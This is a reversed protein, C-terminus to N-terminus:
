LGLLIYTFKGSNKDNRSNQTYVFHALVCLLFTSFLFNSKEIRYIRQLTQCKEEFILFYIGLHGNSKWAGKWQLVFFDITIALNNRCLLDSTFFFICFHGFVAFIAFFVSMEWLMGQNWSFIIFLTLDIISSFIHGVRFGLHKTWPNQIKIDPMSATNTQGCMIFIVLGKKVRLFKPLDPALDSLKFFFWQFHRSVFNLIKVSSLHHWFM